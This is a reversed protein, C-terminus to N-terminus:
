KGTNLNVLGTGGGDLHEGIVEFLGKSKIVRPTGDYERIARQFSEIKVGREINSAAWSDRGSAELIEAKLEESIPAGAEMMLVGLVQFGIAHDDYYQNNKLKRLMELIQPGKEEFDKAKLKVAPGEDPFENVECIGFIEDKVDLPSDGGMIDTSWWGM